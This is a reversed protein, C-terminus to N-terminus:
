KRGQRRPDAGAVAPRLCDLELNRLFEFFVNDGVAARARDVAARAEAWQGSRKLRTSELVWRNAELERELRAADLGETRTLPPALPKGQALLAEPAFPRDANFLFYELRPQDDTIAPYGRVYQRLSGTDAVFTGLLAYPSPFGVDALSRAVSPEAWAATWRQWDAALPRDSAVLVAEYDSPIWLTVEPFVELLSAIMGRTLNDPQQQLPIWQALVGGPALRQRVLTYFDTTYLNVVGADRPPPPEFSIVDYRGSTALLFHRGDDFVTRTRPDNQVGHNHEAFFPAAELVDPNTDVLTLAHLGPYSALAGATSGTGFCVLLVDRPNPHLLMPLHALTAMYRKRPLVTNAYSIAGSLLQQHRIARERCGPSCAYRGSDCISQTDYELVALVTDTGEKVFRAHADDHEAFARVLLDRPVLLVAVALLAASARTSWRARPRAEPDLAQVGLGIAMCLGSVLVFTWQTGITPVLMFGVALSGAIGGLTNVSYLLGVNSAANAVHRTTLQVVLPFVVGILSTPVLLILAAHLLMGVYAGHGGIVGTPGFQGALLQSVPRSLGLLAMSVLGAFALTTEVGVFLELGRTRRDLWLSWALGGLVLGLLFTVLLITFAYTSSDLTTSLVRFWLVEYSISAFGCLAFAAVLLRRRSGTFPSPDSQRSALAESPAPPVRLWRHLAAAALGISLNVASALAATRWLGVAGILYFGAVGSGIAAGLTNLAYLVGFARGLGEHERAVFRTLVPLTGGMFFTPPLLVLFALAARVPLPGGGPLGITSLLGPLAALLSTVGLALAGTAIELLGYALLPRQVRDAIRGIALSGLVLGALFASVVLSVSFTTHGVVLTLARVWVVEYVLGSTGSALFLLATVAFVRSSLRHM